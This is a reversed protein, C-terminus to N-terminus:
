LERQAELASIAATTLLISRRSYRTKTPVAAVLTSKREAVYKSARQRQLAKNVTVRPAKFDIDGWTLALAEGLRM